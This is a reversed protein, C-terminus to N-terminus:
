KLEKPKLKEIIKADVWYIDGGSSYFLYKSDPTLAALSGYMGTEPKTNKPVTWNGDKKKFSIYMGKGGDISVPMGWRAFLIYSEDSAMFSNGENYQTNISNGLRIPKSFKGNVYRSFYIDKNGSKSGKRSSPYYMTGDSTFTPQTEGEPSNVLNGLNKPKSWGCGEREVYWIDLNPPKNWPSPLDSCFYLRNGDPSFAIDVIIYKGALPLIKPKTWVGKIKKSCMLIYFYIGKEKEQKTTTSIVYYFEDGKLSYISNLEYKEKTSIIGPAFIEPIM